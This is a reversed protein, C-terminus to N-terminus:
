PAAPTAQEFVGVDIPTFNIIVFVTEIARLDVVPEVIASQFLAAEQRQIQVIRGIRINQPFRNAVQEQPTDGALGSTVVEEGVKVPAELDIWDMTLVQGPGGGRLIGTARSTALRTPIKSLGDSVLIVQASHPTTRYVQGVLGLSTEVPMGARVGDDSGKNIIIDRFYPNTGRGTVVAAVRTLAQSESVSTAFVERLALLRREVDDLANPDIAAIEPADLLAQLRLYQEEIRKLRENDAQLGALQTQLSIIESQAAQLDRPGALVTAFADTRAATWDLFAAVPDTVFDFIRGTRGISDLLIFFLTLGVLFLLPGWRMNRRPENLNM